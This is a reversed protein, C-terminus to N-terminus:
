SNDSPAAAGATATPKGTYAQAVKNLLGYIKLGDSPAQLGLVLNIVADGVTAVKNWSRATNELQAVYATAQKTINELKAFADDADDFAATIAQAYYEKSIANAKAFWANAKVADFNPDASRQIQYDEIERAHDKWADGQAILQDPSLPSPV